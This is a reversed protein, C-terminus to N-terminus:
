IGRKNRIKFFHITFPNRKIVPAAQVVPQPQVEELVTQVPDKVEKIIYSVTIDLGTHKLFADKIIHEYRAQITKQWFQNPLTITLTQGEFSFAAPRLWMDYTDKGLITEIETFIPTLIESNALSDVEKEAM